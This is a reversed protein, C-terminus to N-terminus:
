CGEIEKGRKVGCLRNTYASACIRQYFVIGTVDADLLRQFAAAIKKRQAFRINARM